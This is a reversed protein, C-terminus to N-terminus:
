KELYFQEPFAHRQGLWEWGWMGEMPVNKLRNSVILPRRTRSVTGISFLNKAQFACRERAIEIRREDDVYKMEEWQAYLEQVEKPPEEGSKGSTELWKLWLPAAYTLAVPPEDLFGSMVGTILGNGVDIVLENAKRLQKGLESSVVRYDMKIGIKAWQRSIIDAEEAQAAGTTVSISYELRKGDPGLRWGESDREELGISDLILNALEPDYETWAQAWQPEYFDKETFLASDQSPFAAGGFVIDNIEDRDIALSLAIRYFRNRHLKQFVPDKPYTQVLVFPSRTTFSALWPHVTYNGREENEYYLTADDAMSWLAVFDVEGSVIKLNKTESSAIYTDVIRDIYPLQNGEEDVKWYYPNREFTMIGVAPTGSVIYMTIVPYNSPCNVNSRGDEAMTWNKSKFMQVWSEYKGEKVMKEIKAKDGYKIHFEKLYHAPQLMEGQIAHTLLIPAVAYPNAFRLRFTYDDVIELKVPEGAVILRSPLTPVIEKNKQVDEIAFRVDETTVPYGDSWKMGKRLHLTIAKNGESFEWSKVWNPIITRSDYDYIVPPEVNFLCGEFSVDPNRSLVRLTGGYKGIKDVVKLIMPEEPLRKEVSPLEGAAVKAALEPSEKYEVALASTVWLLCLAASLWVVVTKRRM